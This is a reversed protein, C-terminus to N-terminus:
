FGESQNDEEPIFDDSTESEIIQAVGSEDPFANFVITQLSNPDQTMVFDLRIRIENSLLSSNSGADRFAIKIDKISVFPLWFNFTSVINDEITILTEETIQEFILKRLGM